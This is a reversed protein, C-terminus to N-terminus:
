SNVHLLNMEVRRYYDFDAILGAWSWDTEHMEALMGIESFRFKGDPFKGMNLQLTNRVFQPMYGMETSRNLGDMNRFSFMSKQRANTVPRMDLVTIDLLGDNNYDAIDM